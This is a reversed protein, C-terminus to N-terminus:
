AVFNAAADRELDRGLAAALARGKVLTEEYERGPDSDLVVGGGVHFHVEGGEFVLTRIAISLAAGGDLGLTGIAGTFLGRRVGELEEIIEMARIKPVGTVSGGPFAARLLDCPTAGPALQGRVVATRHLLTPYSEIRGRELVAVSGPRCIRSLDNRELDIVMSLEAIEKADSALEIALAADRAPDLTRRRTGKIPRTEVEGRHLALFLEPSASVVRLEGADIRAAFPAPNAARLREHIADVDGRTPPAGDFEAAFRQALNVQYVDGDLIRERVAAVAAVYGDRDFNSVLRACARPAAPLSPARSALRQEIADLAVTADVDRLATAVVFATAEGSGLDIEVGRDFIGLLLDPVRSAGRATTPLREFRRGLDYAFFGALGGRFAADRPPEVRGAVELVAGLAAFPDRLALADRLAPLEPHSALREGDRDLALTAVPDFLVYARPPAGAQAAGDLLVAFGDGRLRRHADLPRLPSGLKRELVRTPEV